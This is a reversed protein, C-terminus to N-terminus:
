TELPKVVDAVDALHAPWDAPEGIPVVVFKSAGAEVFRELLPALSAVDPAVVDRVDV